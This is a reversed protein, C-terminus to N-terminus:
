SLKGNSCKLSFELLLQNSSLKKNGGKEHTQTLIIDAHTSMHIHTCMHEHLHVLRLKTDPIMGTDSKWRM